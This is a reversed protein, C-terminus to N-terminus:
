TGRTLSRAVLVSAMENTGMSVQCGKANRMRDEMSPDGRGGMIQIGEISARMAADSSFTRAMAVEKEHPKRHDKLWAARLTLLEAADLEMAMDALKWQVAQPTIMSKGRQETGRLWELTEGLVSRGIGVALAAIGMWSERQISLRHDSGEGLSGLLADEPLQVNDFIVDANRFGFIDQRVARGGIQVGPSRELDMVFSSLRPDEQGESTVALIVGFSSIAGMAVRRKRGNIVWGNGVRVAKTRIQSPEPSAEEEGLAFCGIRKGSACPHLYIRKQECSGYTELPFCYFANNAAMVAGACTSVQAVEMLGLVYSVNDKGGGGYEKAVTMGMMKLEGLRGIVESLVDPKEELESRRPRIEQAIRRAFDRM